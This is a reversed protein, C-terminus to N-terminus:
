DEADDDLEAPRLGACTAAHVAAEEFLTWAYNAAAERNPARHEKPEIASPGIRVTKKEMGYIVCFAHESEMLFLPTGGISALVHVKVM